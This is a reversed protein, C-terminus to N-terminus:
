QRTAKAITVTRQTVPSGHARWRITVRHRAGSNCPFVVTSGIGSPDGAPVEFPLAARIGSHLRTGDLLVAVSTASPVSWGVIVQAQGPNDNLCWFKRPTKFQVVKPAGGPTTVTTPQPTTTTTTKPITKGGAAVGARTSGGGSSGGCSALCVALAFATLPGLAERGHPIV